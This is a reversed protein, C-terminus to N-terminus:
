VRMVRSHKSHAPREVNGDKLVQTLTDRDTSVELDSRYGARTTFEDSFQAVAADGLQVDIDRDVNYRSMIQPNEEGFRDICINHLKCCVRVVQARHLMSIRLPRWFVGWRRVFLGFAREICQRHLSLYYNFADKEISLQRGKWPSLEQQNCVYADDLVVHYGPLLQGSKIFISLASVAYM